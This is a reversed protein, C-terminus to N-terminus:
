GASNNRTNKAVDLVTKVLTDFNPRWPLRHRALYPQHLDHEADDSPVNGRSGFKNGFEIPQGVGIRNSFMPNPGNDHFLALIWNSPLLDFIERM